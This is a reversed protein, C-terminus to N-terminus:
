KRVGKTDFIKADDYTVNNNEKGALYKAGIKVIDLVKDDKSSDSSKIYKVIIDIAYPLLAGVVSWM